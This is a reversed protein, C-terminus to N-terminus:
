LVITRQFLNHTDFTMEASIIQCKLVYAEIAGATAGAILSHAPNEKETKSM